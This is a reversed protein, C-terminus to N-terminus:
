QPLPPAEVKLLEGTLTQMFAILDKKEQKSLRLPKVKADLNPNRTGGRDYVEVVEELTKVSGDHFYPATQAIERLTPARPRFIM